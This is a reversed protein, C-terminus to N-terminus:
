YNKKYKKLEFRTAFHEFTKWINEPVSKIDVM